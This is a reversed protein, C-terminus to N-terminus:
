GVDVPMPAAEGTTPASVGGRHRRRIAAIALVAVVGTVLLWEPWEGVLTAVTTRDILEVEAVMVDPTFLEARDRVAGAPDIVASVGALAAVLTWRGHEVARLRSMALQQETMPSYGFGANNTQVALLQAGDRVADRALNDFAVEFCIVAGVRADALDLVGVEDGPVFDRPQRAVADPAIREAIGRFPIYEGFPMPHRKVYTDGPGTMPDWVVSTNEVNQQDPTPVITGVLTPVGIAAVAASIEEHAEADAFPNIDSANEPWVVIDPQEAAGAAVDAALQHTADVHNALIARREANFDLGRGPTSGQVIAVTMSRGDASVAPVAAGVAVIAAAAVAAAVRHWAPRRLLAWALVGGALAVGFTVLVTGGLAALGLMPGDVQSFALKGWTFGGWPVRGRGAEVAVWAAATLLPWFPLRQFVAVVAGLPAYFLAQSAALLLWPIPGVEDGTWVLFPVFFGLGFLLGLLAARPMSRNRVVLTFAAVVPIAVFWLDHPQFAAILLVGLGVAAVLRVLSSVLPWSRKPSSPTQKGHGYLTHAWVHTGSRGSAM